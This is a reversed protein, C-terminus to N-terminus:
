RLVLGAAYFKLKLIEATQSQLRSSSIKEIKKTPDIRSAPM